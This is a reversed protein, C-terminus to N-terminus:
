PAHRIFQDTFRRLPEGLLIPGFHEGQQSTDSVRMHVPAVVVTPVSRGNSTTSLIGRNGEDDRNQIFLHINFATKRAQQPLLIAVDNFHKYNISSARVVRHRQNTLHATDVPFDPKYVIWFLYLRCTHPSIGM